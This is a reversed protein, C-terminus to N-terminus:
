DWGTEGSLRVDAHVMMGPGISPHLDVPRAGPRRRLTGLGRTVEEIEIKGQLHRRDERNSLSPLTDVATDRRLTAM